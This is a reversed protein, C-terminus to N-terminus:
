VFNPSKLIWQNKSIRSKGILVLPWKFPVELCDGFNETERVRKNTKIEQIHVLGPGFRNPKELSTICCRPSCGIPCWAPKGYQQTWNGLWKAYSYQYYQLGTVRHAALVEKPGWGGWFEREWFPVSSFSIGFTGLPTSSGMVKPRPFPGTSTKEGWFFHIM